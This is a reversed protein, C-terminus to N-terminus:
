RMAQRRAMDEIQADISEVNAEAEWIRWERLLLLVAVVFFVVGIMEGVSM